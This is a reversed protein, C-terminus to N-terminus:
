ALMVSETKHPAYSKEFDARPVDGVPQCGTMGGPSFNPSNNDDAGNWRLANGVAYDDLADRIADRTIQM